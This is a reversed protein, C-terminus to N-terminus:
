SWTATVHMKCVILSTVVLRCTECLVYLFSLSVPKERPIPTTPTPLQVLPGEKDPTSPLSFLKDALAQVLRTGKELCEKVLEERYKHSLDM